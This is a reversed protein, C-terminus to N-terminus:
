KFALRKGIKLEHAGTPNLMKAAMPREDILVLKVEGFGGRGLDRVDVIDGARYEKCFQLVKAEPLTTISPLGDAAQTPESM